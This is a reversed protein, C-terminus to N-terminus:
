AKAAEFAKPQAVEQKSGAAIEVREGKIKNWDNLRQDSDPMYDQSFAVVRYQEWQKGEPDLWPVKNGDADRVAQSEQYEEVSKSTLGTEIARKQEATFIPFISLFVVNTPTKGAERLADLRKQVSETTSGLPVKVFAVRQQKYINPKAGFDEAEYLGSSLSNGPRIGPYANTVVQHLHASLANQNLSERVEECTIDGYSRIIGSEMTIEKGM